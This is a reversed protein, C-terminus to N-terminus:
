LILPILFPVALSLIIGNFVSIVAYEQGAFKVVVPLTTDMSTAGGSAIPALNGFYKVLVPAMLLTAVERIINSLLALVGLAEGKLQTILISSLSYYGFGSVVALSERLTYDQLCVSILGAGLLTGMLVSLPVLLIKLNSRKFMQWTQNNGGMGIGVLLLLLYLAYLTMESKYLFAPVLAFVGSFLGAIFFLVIFLGSKM